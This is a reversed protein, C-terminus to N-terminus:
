KRWKMSGKPGVCVRRTRRFAKDIGIEKRVLIDSKLIAIGVTVADVFSSREIQRDCCLFLADKTERVLWGIAERVCPGLKAPDCNRFLVHDM